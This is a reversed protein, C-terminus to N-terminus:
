ELDTRREPACSHCRRDRRDPGVKGLDTGSRLRPGLSRLRIPRSLLCVEVDHGEQRLAAAAAMGAIGAGIIIVKLPMHPRATHIGSTASMTFPRMAYLM